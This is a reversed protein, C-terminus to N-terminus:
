KSHYNVGACQPDDLCILVCEIQSQTLQRSATNIGDRRQQRAKCSRSSRLRDACVAPGFGLGCTARECIYNRNQHCPVDNWVYSALTEVYSNNFHFQNKTEVCNPVNLSSPQGNRFSSTLPDWFGSFVAHTNTTISRM